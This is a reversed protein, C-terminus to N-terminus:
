RNAADAFWKKWKATDFAFDEGTINKLAFAAANIDEGWQGKMIAGSPKKATSDEMLEILPRVAAKDGIEGLAGPRM